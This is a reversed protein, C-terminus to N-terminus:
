ASRAVQDHELSAVRLRLASAEVRLGRNERTLRNYARILDSISMFMPDPMARNPEVQMQGVGAGGALDQVTAYGQAKEENCM